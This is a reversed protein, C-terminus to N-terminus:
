EDDDTPDIPPKDDINSDDSDTTEPEVATISQRRRKVKGNNLTYSIINENKDLFDVLDNTMEIAAAHSLLNINVGTEPDIIRFYLAVKGKNNIVSKILEINGKNVDEIKIDITLRNVMDARINSLMKISQVKIEPPTKGDKDPYKREEIRAKIFLMANKSIMKGYAEYDKGFLAIIENAYQVWPPAIKMENENM